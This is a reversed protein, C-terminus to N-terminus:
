TYVNLWRNHNFTLKKSSPFHILLSHFLSLSLPLTSPSLNAIKREKSLTLKAKILMWTLTRTMKQNLPWGVPWMGSDTGVPIKQDWGWLQRRGQPLGGQCALYPVEPLEVQSVAEEVKGPIATPEGRTISRHTLFPAPPPGSSGPDLYVKGKGKFSDKRRMRPKIANNRKKKKKRIWEVRSSPKGLM